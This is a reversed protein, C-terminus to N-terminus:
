LEADAAMWASTNAPTLITANGATLSATAATPGTCGLMFRSGGDLAFATLPWATAGNASWVDFDGPASVSTAPNARMPVPLDMLKGFVRTAGWAQMICISDNVDNAPRWRFYYRQCRAREAAAGIRQFPLAASGAELQAFDVDLTVTQAAAGQTWVLGIVNNFATGMAASLPALTTWTAAAPTQTGVALVALNSGLFFNGATYTGSTWSNVVNSTVADETGTWGLIAYGIAQSTSIRVRASLTANGGRLDKCNVGEVIQALGMRQATTQPQTLRIAHTYGTEPDALQSVTVAATQSLVYWRDLCYSDNGVSTAAGQNRQDVQFGGNILRNDGSVGPLSLLSAWDIWSGDQYVLFTNSTAVFARLGNFPTYFRWGGDICYAIKYAYGSWAGTPSAGLLWTDGDAPSSPPTNVFQGKLYLDSQADIQILADNIAMADLEQGDVLQGLKLRPTDDVSM